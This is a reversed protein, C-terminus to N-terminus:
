GPEHAAPFQTKLGAFDWLRPQPRRQHSAGCSPCRPIKLVPHSRSALTLLNLTFLQGITTPAVFGTLIKAVELAALDMGPNIMLAGSHLDDEKLHSELLLYEEYDSMNSKLRLDFCTYCATEGPIVTPGICIDFGNLRFSTWTTKSELAALNFEEYSTPNFRDEALVATTAEGLLDALPKTGSRGAVFETDPHCEKIRTAVLEARDSGIDTSTFWPDQAVDASSVPASSDLGIITGIGLTCLARCLGTGIPGLGRVLVTADKLKAQFDVGPAAFADARPRAFHSFLAMQQAYREREAGTLGGPSTDAEAKGLIGAEVLDQLLGVAAEPGLPEMADLIEDIHRTGDALLVIRRVDGVPDEISIAHTLSQLVLRGPSPPLATFRKAVQPRAPLNRM